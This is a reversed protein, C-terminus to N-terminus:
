IASTVDTAAVANRFDGTNRYDHVIYDFAREPSAATTMDVRIFLLDYPM